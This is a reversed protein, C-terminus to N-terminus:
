CTTKNSILGCQECECTICIIHYKVLISSLSSCSLIIVLYIVCSHNAIFKVSINVQKKPWFCMGYLVLGLALTLALDIEFLLFNSILKSESIWLLFLIVIGVLLACSEYRNLRCGWWFWVWIRMWKHIHVLTIFTLPWTTWKAQWPSGWKKLYFCYSLFQM